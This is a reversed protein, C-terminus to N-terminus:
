SIVSLRKRAITSAAAMFGIYFVGSTCVAALSTPHVVLLGAGSGMTALALFYTTRLKGKSPFLAAVSAWVISIIALVIHIGLIM